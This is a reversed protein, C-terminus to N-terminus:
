SDGEFFGGSSLKLEIFALLGLFVFLVTSIAASFGFKLNNLGRTFMYHVISLTANSPGGRTIMFPAAFIQFAAVTGTIIVFFTIPKLLPLTVHLFTQYGRAGDIKAAEYIEEPINQLGTLFYIMMFPIGMWSRLIVVGFKAWVGNQWWPIGESIIGISKLIYNVVGYDTQFLTAFVIATVAVAIIRPMFFIARFFAKFKLNKNNIIIALLLAIPVSIVLGGVGMIFTNKLATVATMDTFIKIYNKAGVFKWPGIGRWEHFGLIFAYIIPFIRFVFYLIFFPGLFKVPALKRDNKKWWDLM